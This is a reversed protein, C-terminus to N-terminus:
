NKPLWKKKLETSESISNVEDGCEPGSSIIESCHKVLISSDSGLSLCCLRKTVSVLPVELACDLERKQSM